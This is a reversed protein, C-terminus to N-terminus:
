NNDNSILSARAAFPAVALVSRNGRGQERIGRHRQQIGSAKERTLDPRFNLAPEFTDGRRRSLTLVKSKLGAEQLAAIVSSRTSM